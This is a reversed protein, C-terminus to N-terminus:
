NFFSQRILGAIKIARRIMCEFFSRLRRRDWKRKKRELFRIPQRRRIFEVTNWGNMLDSPLQKYNYNMIIQFFETAAEEKQYTLPSHSNSLKGGLSSIWQSLFTLNNNSERTLEWITSWSYLFQTWITTPLRCIYNPGQGTTLRRLDFDLARCRCHKQKFM